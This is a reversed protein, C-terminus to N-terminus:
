TEHRLIQLIRERLAARLRSLRSEAAKYALGREAAIESLPREDIYFSQLLERADPPLEGLAVQLVENLPHGAPEEVGAIEDAPLAEYRKQRRILDLWSRRAVQWLWGHLAAECDCIPAHQALKLLSTQALERALIEDGRTVRLLRQFLPLAFHAHLQNFAAEDGRRVAETLQRFNMAEPAAERETAKAPLSIAPFCTCDITNL